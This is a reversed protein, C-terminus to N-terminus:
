QENMPVRSQFAHMLTGGDLYELEGGIPVGHAIRTCTINTGAHAAIYHATAKGEMTPNTALIIETIGGKKIRELLAPIAIDNPGIGDLPSLHGHLVYYVGRYSSTQEIAIIDAPSEVICLLSADRKHNNCLECTEDETYNRCTNCYGVKEIANKLADALALGKTKHSESLLQFAMRQATKPGVGPLGRLAEILARTLPSFM